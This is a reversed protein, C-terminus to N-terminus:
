ATKAMRGIGYAATGGILGALVLDFGPTMIFFLPGLIMGFALSLRGAIDNSVSILSLTFYIPTLFLLGGALVPSFLGAATHGVLVAVINISLLLACFGFYYPIRDERRMAPLTRMSEVWVTIAMFHSLLYLKWKPTNHGRLMPMLTVALPMLRVATLTVAFAAVLLSAGGAVESVLVVQGPLAWIFFTIFATHFASFGNERALAGFGIMSFVLVIAAPSITARMGGLFARKVGLKERSEANDGDQSFGGDGM